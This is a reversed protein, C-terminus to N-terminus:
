EEPEPQIRIAFNRLREGKPAPHIRLEVGIAGADILAQAIQFLRDPDTDTGHLVRVHYGSTFCLNWSPAAQDAPLVFCPSPANEREFWDLVAFLAQDKAPPNTEIPKAYPPLRQPGHARRARARKLRIVSAEPQNSILAFLAPIKDGHVTRCSRCVSLAFWMGRGIPAVQHTLVGPDKLSVLVGCVACQVGGAPLFAVLRSRTHNRHEQYKPAAQKPYAGKEQADM